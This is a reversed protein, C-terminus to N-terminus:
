TELGVQYRQLLLKFVEKIIEDTDFGTIIEANDIKTHMM